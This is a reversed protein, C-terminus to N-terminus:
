RLIIFLGALSMLVCLPALIGRISVSFEGERMKEEHNQLPKLTQYTRPM